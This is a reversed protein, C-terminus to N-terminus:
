TREAAIDRQKHWRIKVPLFFMRKLRLYLMTGNNGAFKIKVSTATKDDASRIVGTYRGKKNKDAVLDLIITGTIDSERTSSSLIGEYGNEKKYIHYIRSSDDSYWMGTIQQSCTDSAITINVIFLLLLPLRM